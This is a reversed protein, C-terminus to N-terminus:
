GGLILIVLLLDIKCKNYIVKFMNKVVDFNMLSLILIFIFLFIFIIM